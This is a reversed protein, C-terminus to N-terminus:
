SRYSGMHGVCPINPNDVHRKLADRRSFTKMCGGIMLRGKFMYAGAKICEEDAMGQRIGEGYLHAKDIGVGCCIWKKPEKWRNHTIIHRKLEPIHHNEQKYDCGVVPCLFDSKKDVFLSADKCQFNRSPVDSRHPHYRRAGRAFTRRKQSKSTASRPPSFAVSHPSKSKSTIKKKQKRSSTSPTPHYDDDGDSPIQVYDGDDDSEASNFSHSSVSPSTPPSPVVTTYDSPSYFCPTLVTVTSPDVLAAPLHAAPTSFNYTFTTALAPTSEEDVTM